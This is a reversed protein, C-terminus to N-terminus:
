ARQGPASKLKTVFSHSSFFTFCFAVVLRLAWALGSWAHTAVIGDRDSGEPRYATLAYVPRMFWPDNREVRAAKALRGFSPAASTM